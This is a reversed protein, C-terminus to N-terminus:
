RQVEKAAYTMVDLVVDYIEAKKYLDYWEIAESYYKSPCGDSVTKAFFNGYDAAMRDAILQLPSACIVPMDFAASRLAYSRQTTHFDDWEQILYKKQLRM